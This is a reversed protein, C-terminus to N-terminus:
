LESGNSVELSANAVVEDIRSDARYIIADHEDTCSFLGAVLSFNM